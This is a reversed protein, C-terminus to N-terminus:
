HGGGGGGSTKSGVTVVTSGQIAENSTDVILITQAGGTNLTLTFTHVGADKNSFTYDSPLGAGAVSDSFHVKGLYGTAINGYADVATVTITFSKGVTPSASVSMVFHSASAATVNIGIHGAVATSAADKVTITQSGATKLTASFTHVGADATTFAYSAPLGAQVDTSSFVVTGTYGTAINGFADHATITISQGVGATTSTTGTVAFSTAAAPTVQTQTTSTLSPATADSVTISRNGVTKLTASFTHVGADASTFLYSAPLAAQPDNSSFNVTGTYGTAVNGFADLLTVTLGQAVGAISTSTGKPNSVVLSAAAGPVVVLSSVVGPTVGPSSDTATISVAGATKLTLSFTHMGSDGATFTYSAPLVAQPDSSTLSVTGTFGPQFNGFADVAEVTVSVPVGATTSTPIFSLAFSLASVTSPSVNVFFFNNTAAPLAADSVNIIQAGTTKLAVSFTHVGADAATFTYHALLPVQSDPSTLDVTGTYNTAINGFIDRATITFNQVVGATTATPGSITFSAVQVPAVQVTASATAMRPDTALLTDTGATDFAIANTFTHTGADAATFTYFELGKAKPDSSGLHVTGLFGTVPNGLADVATVTVSFRQGAISSTTTTSIRFAVAGDLNQESGDNFVIATAPTNPPSTNPAILPLALDPFGDGNFDGVGIVGATGGVDTVQDPQFTGDGNGLLVSLQGLATGVVLDPIGDLNMDAVKMAFTGSASFPLGAAPTYANYTSAGFLGNVNILVAVQNTFDESLVIDPAGDGNVDTVVLSTPKGQLNVIQRETVNGGSVLQITVTGGANTGSTTIIDQNGDGNLDAVATIVGASPQSLALGVSSATFTGNGNGLYLTWTPTTGLTGGGAKNEGGIGPATSASLGPNYIILDAKGDGNFDGASVIQPDPKTGVNQPVFTLPPQFTGDPNGLFISILDANNIDQAYDPVGDNNFDAFFKLNSPLSLNLGAVANSVSSSAIVNTAQFSGDGNGPIVSFQSLTPSFGALDVHGDGTFDAVTLSSVATDGYVTGPLFTGDGNGLMVSVVSRSNTASSVLDPVGDGNVDAIITTTVIPNVDLVSQSFMTQPVTFPLSNLTTPAQFTGDGNGLFTQAPAVIDLDHDGNLDGVAIPGTLSLASVTTAAGFTGDGNGNLITLNTGSVALDVHGDGNFDGSAVYRAGAGASYAVGAQFTGDGNGALVEVTGLTPNTAVLDPKGDNNVDAVAPSGYGGGLQVTDPEPLANPAQFTGDGNGILVHVVPASTSVDGGVVGLDVRGDGNFDDEILGSPGQVGAFFSTPAGFTGDGNGLMVDVHGASTNDTAVDLKGDGNFDAVVVGVTGSAVPTVIPSILTLVVRDELVEYELGLRIRTSRRRGRDLRRRRSTRPRDTESGSWGKRWSFM